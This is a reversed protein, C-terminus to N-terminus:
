ERRVIERVIEASINLRQAVANAIIIEKREGDMYEWGEDYGLKKVKEHKMYFLVRDITTYDIQLEGEATQGPWLMPSPTKGAIRRWVNGKGKMGSRPYSDKTEGIWELLKRVQTKFLYEPVNIDVRGDGYKTYYGLINESRDDTGVVLGHRKNAEKYLLMMRIRPKLNGYATRNEIRRLDPDQELFKEVIGSIEAYERRINLATIVDESDVIDERPTVGKEPLMMGVVNEHGIAAATMYATLASDSGGSIGIVATRLKAREFYGRTWDVGYSLAKQWDLELEKPIEM